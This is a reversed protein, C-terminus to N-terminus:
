HLYNWIKLFDFFEFLFSTELTWSDALVSEQMKAASIESFQHDQLNEFDLALLSDQISM